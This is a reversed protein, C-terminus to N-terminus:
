CYHYLFLEAVLRSVNDEVYEYAQTKGASQQENDEPKLADVVEDKDEEVDSSENEDAWVFRLPDTSPCLGAEQWQDAEPM